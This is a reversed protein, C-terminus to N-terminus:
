PYWHFRWINENCHNLLVQVFLLIYWFRVQHFTVWPFIWLLQSSSIQFKDRDTFPDGWVTTGMVFCSIMKYERDGLWLQAFCKVENTWCSLLKEWHTWDTLHKQYYALVHVFYSQCSIVFFMKVSQGRWSLVSLQKSLASLLRESGETCYTLGLKTWCSLVQEIQPM